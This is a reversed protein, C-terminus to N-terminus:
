LRELAELQELTNVGAAEIADVALTAIEGTAACAAVLDTLYIEGQANARGVRPLADRLVDLDIAYLGANCEAIAREDDSADREERIAQVAGGASRVVRGYGTRDVPEFTAFALRGNAHAAADVLREITTATVLPVDGALIVAIGRAGALEALGCLVAHGTGLQETQTAFRIRSREAPFADEVAARVRDAGYGVVVAVADAGAALATRVVHVVLPEGRLPHLVKPLDSRMRTGKGAALVIATTRV